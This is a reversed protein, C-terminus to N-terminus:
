SRSKSKKLARKPAEVKKLLDAVEAESVEAIKSSIEDMQTSSLPPSYPVLIGRVKDKDM